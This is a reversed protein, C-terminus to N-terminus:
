VELYRLDLGLNLITDWSSKLSPLKELLYRKEFFVKRIGPAAKIKALRHFRLSAWRPVAPEEEGFCAPGLAM